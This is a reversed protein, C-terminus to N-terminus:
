GMIRPSSCPAPLRRWTLSACGATSTPSTRTGDALAVAGAWDASPIVAVEHPATPRFHGGRARRQPRGGPLRVAGGCGRGMRSVMRHNGSLKFSGVLSPVVPNSVNAIKLGESEAALYAYDGQLAVAWAYGGPLPLQGLLAPYAPDAVDVVALGSNGDAIYARSAGQAVAQAYGPTDVGGAQAPKAPDTVNM